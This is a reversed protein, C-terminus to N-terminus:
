RYSFNATFLGLWRVGVQLGFGVEGGMMLKREKPQLNPNAPQTQESRVKRIPSYNYVIGASNNSSAQYTFRPISSGPPEV